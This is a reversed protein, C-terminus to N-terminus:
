GRYHKQQDKNRKQKRMEKRRYLRLCELSCFSLKEEDLMEVDKTVEEISTKFKRCHDCVWGFLKKGM